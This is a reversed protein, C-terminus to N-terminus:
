SRSLIRAACHSALEGREDARNCESICALREKLVAELILERVYEVDVELLHVRDAYLRLKEDVTM